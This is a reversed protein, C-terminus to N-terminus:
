FEFSLGFSFGVLSDGIFTSARLTAGGDGSGTGAFNLGIGIEGAVPVGLYNHVDGPTYNVAAFGLWRLPGIEPLRGLPGDFEARASVSPQHLPVALTVDTASSSITALHGIRLAGDFGIDNGLAAEHRLELSGGIVLADLKANAVLGDALSAVLGSFPGFTLADSRVRAYGGLLMPRISLGGGLPVTAGAGGIVTEGHMSINVETPFVPVIAIGVTKDARFRGLTLQVYPRVGRWVPDFEYSLPVKVLDANFTGLNDTDLTFRAARIGPTLAFLGLAPVFDALGGRLLTDSELDRLPITQPQAPAAVALMALLGLTGVLRQHM